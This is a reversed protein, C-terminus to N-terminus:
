NNNVWNHGIVLTFELNKEPRNHIIIDKKPINLLTALAHAKKYNGPKGVFGVFSTQNNNPREKLNVAPKIFNETSIPEFSAHLTQTLILLYIIFIIM